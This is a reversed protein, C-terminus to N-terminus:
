FALMVRSVPEPTFAASRNMRSSSTNETCTSMPLGAKSLFDSRLHIAEMAIAAALRKKDQIFSRYASNWAAGFNTETAFHLKPVRSMEFTRMDKVTTTDTMINIVGFFWGLLPDHGLTIERHNKGSMGLGFAGSGDIVDFPVPESLIQSWTRGYIADSKHLSDSPNNLTDSITDRADRESNKIAKDDHAVREDREAGSGFDTLCDIVIWRATQLATAVALFTYDTKDLETIKCFEDDIEKIVSKSNLSLDSM